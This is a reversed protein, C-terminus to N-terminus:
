WLFLCVPVLMTYGTCSLLYGIVNVSVIEEVTRAAIRGAGHYFEESPIEGLSYAFYERGAEWLSVGLTYGMGANKLSVALAAKKGTLTLVGDILMPTVTYGAFDAGTRTLAKSFSERNNYADSLLEWNESLSKFAGFAAYPAAKKMSSFIKQRLSYNRQQESQNILEQINETMASLKEQQLELSDHNGTISGESVVRTRASEDFKANNIFKEYQDDPLIIRANPNKRLTEALNRSDMRFLYNRGDITIGVDNRGAPNYLKYRDSYYQAKLRSFNAEQGTFTRSDFNGTKLAKNVALKNHAKLAEPDPSELLDKINDAAKDLLEPVEKAIISAYNQEAAKMAESKTLFPAYQMLGQAIREQGSVSINERFIERATRDLERQSLNPNGKLLEQKVANIIESESGSFKGKNM